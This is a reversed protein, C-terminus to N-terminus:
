IVRSTGYLSFWFFQGGGVHAYLCESFRSSNTYSLLM